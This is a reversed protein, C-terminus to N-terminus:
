DMDIVDQIEQPAYKATKNGKAQENAEDVLFCQMVTDMGISYVSM